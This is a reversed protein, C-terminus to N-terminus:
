VSVATGDGKLKRVQEDSNIGVVLFGGLQKAGEL